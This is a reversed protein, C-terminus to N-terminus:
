RVHRRIHCSRCLWEVDHPAGDPDPEHMESALKGCEVCAEGTSISYKRLAKCVEVKGRKWGPLSELTNKLNDIDQGKRHKEYWRKSNAKTKARNSERWERQYLRRCVLCKKDKGGASERENCVRCRSM